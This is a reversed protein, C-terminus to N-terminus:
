CVVWVLWVGVGQVIGGGLGAREGKWHAAPHTQFLSLGEKKTPSEKRCLAAGAKGVDDTICFVGFVTGPSHRPFSAFYKQPFSHVRWVNGYKRLVSTYQLTAPRCTNKTRISVQFSSLNRVLPMPDTIVNRDHRSVSLPQCICRLIAPAAMKRQM